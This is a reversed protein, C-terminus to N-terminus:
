ERSLLHLSSLYYGLKQFDHVFHQNMLTSRLAASPHFSVFVEVGAHSVLNSPAPLVLGHFDGVTINSIFYHLAENGLTVVLRLKEMSLLTPGLWTQSCIKRCQQTPSKDKPTMCKVVNEIRCDARPLKIMAFGENLKGGAKGVFPRGVADEDPGPNRGLFCIEADMPGIGPVPRRCYNREMCLKCDALQTVEM